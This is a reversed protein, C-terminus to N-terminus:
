CPVWCSWIVPPATMVQWFAKLYVSVGSRSAFDIPGSYDLFYVQFVNSLHSPPSFLFWTLFPFLEARLGGRSSAGLCLFLRFVWRSRAVNSISGGSSFRLFCRFYGGDSKQAVVWGGFCRLLCWLLGVCCWCTEWFGWRQWEEWMTLVVM